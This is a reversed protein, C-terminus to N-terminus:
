HTATEDAVRIIKTDVATKFLTGPILTRGPKYTQNFSYKSWPAKGKVPKGSPPKTM